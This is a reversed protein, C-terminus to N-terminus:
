PDIPPAYSITPTVDIPQSSHQPQATLTAFAINIAIGAPMGANGPLAQAKTSLGAINLLTEASDKSVKPDDCNRSLNLLTTVAEPTALRAMARAKELVTNCDKLEVQSEHILRHFYASNLLTVAQAQSLGFHQALPLPADVGLTILQALERASAEFFKVPLGAPLTPVDKVPASLIM